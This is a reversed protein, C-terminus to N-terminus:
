QCNRARWFTEARLHLPRAVDPNIDRGSPTVFHVEGDPLRLYVAAQKLDRAADRAIDVLTETAGYWARDMEIVDGGMFAPTAVDYVYVPESDTLGSPARWAGWATVKTFGGFAAVLRTEVARIVNLDGSAPLIIRAEKYVNMAKAKRKLQTVSGNGCYADYCVSARTLRAMQAIRKHALLM